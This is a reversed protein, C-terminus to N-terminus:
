SPMAKGKGCERFTIDDVAIVTLGGGLTGVLELLFPQSVRLNVAAYMWGNTAAVSIPLVLLPSTNEVVYIWDDLLCVVM